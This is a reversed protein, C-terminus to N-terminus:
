RGKSNSNAEVNKSQATNNGNPFLLNELGLEEMLRRDEQVMEDSLGEKAQEEALLRVGAQMGLVAAQLDKLENVSYRKPYIYHAKLKGFKPKGYLVSLERFRNCLPQLGLPILLYEYYFEAFTKLQLEIQQLISMNLNSYDDTLRSYTTRTSRAILRQQFKLLDIVEAGLGVAQAQTITEGKHYYQTSGARTEFITEEGTPQEFANPNSRLVNVANGLAPPATGNKQVLWHIDQANIQKQTIADILSDLDYSNLLSSASYPIGRWQGVGFKRDFIHIIEDAPVDIKRFNNSSAKFLNPNQLRFHVAEIDVDFHYFTRENGEFSIGNRTKTPNTGYYGPDLYLSPINQVALPITIGKRRKIIMRSIAEGAFVATTWNDQLNLGNGYGDISPNEWFEDWLSQMEKHVKGKDDKWVIKLGQNNERFNQLATDLMPNNRLNDEHRLRLSTLENAAIEDPHLNLLGKKELRYGKSAGQYGKSFMNVVNEEYVSSTAM